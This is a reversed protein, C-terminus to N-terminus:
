IDKLTIVIKDPFDKRGFITINNYTEPIHHNIGINPIGSDECLIAEKIPYTNFKVFSELTRKLLEPRGCSTIFLTVEQNM